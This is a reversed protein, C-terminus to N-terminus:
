AAAALGSARLKNLAYLELRRVDARPMRLRRATEQISEPDGGGLGFRLTLVRRERADLIRLLADVLGDDVAHGPYEEVPILRGLETDGM